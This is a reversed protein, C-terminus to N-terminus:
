SSRSARHRPTSRRRATGSAPATAHRTSGCASASSGAALVRERVAAAHEGIGGTFVIADVRGLAAAYAGIYKRIRYCFM